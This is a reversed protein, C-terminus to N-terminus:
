TIEITEFSVPLSIGKEKLNNIKSNLTIAPCGKKVPGPIVGKMRDFIVLFDEELINGFTVPLFVCPEVNGATDIYILSNGGMLCGLNEPLEVYSEYSIVPYDMHSKGTNSNIYLDTAIARENEGLICSEGENKLYAGCPKPELWRVFGVKLTRMLDFYRYIDGSRIIENTLCMNVYTFVGADQFYKLANIANQYAGKFGRFTDHRKPDIDDLAVGAAQLGAKKLQEAKGKSVGYGSTHIHFDSKSHDAEKLIHILDNFRLIPEGGSLTIIGTGYAQLKSIVEQLKFVPITDKKKLNNFEYCHICNYDCQRTIGIIANDIHHKIATGAAAVNLGGNAAMKDFAKSPWHPANLSFYYNGNHQVFKRTKMKKFLVQSEHLGGEVNSLSFLPYKRRNVIYKLMSFRYRLMVSTSSRCYHYTSDNTFTM